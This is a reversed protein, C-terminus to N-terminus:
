SGAPRQCFFQYMARFTSPHEAEFADWRSLDLWAGPDQHSRRFRVEISKDAFSFGRFVLGLEDLVAEIRLPDFRHEEVHFVLDRLEGITFFDRWDLLDGLAPDAVAARRFERIGDTTAPYGREEIRRRAGAVAGRARESYLGIKMVGGPLLLDRLVRWGAIPVALHHLVGVSEILHFREEIASLELLDGQVLEVNEVGLEDAMRRAYALSARSLDVGLVDVGPHM